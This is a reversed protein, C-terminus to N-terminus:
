KSYKKLKRKLEARIRNSRKAAQGQAKRKRYKALESEHVPAKIRDLYADIQKQAKADKTTM